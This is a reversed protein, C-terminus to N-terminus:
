GSRAERPATRTGGVVGGGEVGELDFDFVGGGNSLDLLLSRPLAFPSGTGEVGSRWANGVRVSSKADERREFGRGRGGDRFVFDRSSGGFSAAPGNGALAM